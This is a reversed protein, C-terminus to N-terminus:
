GFYDTIKKHYGAAWNELTQSQAFIRGQVIMTQLLQAPLTSYIQQLVYFLSETEKADFLFGRNGNDIMYPALASQNLVSVLGHFFGEIPVKGFGESIAAQVVFDNQRYLARLQQYNFGGTITVENQLNNEKVFQQYIEKLPGEGVISLQFPINAKRLLLCTQLIYIQNKNVDLRGVSVMQLKQINAHGLRAIRQQVQEIEENWELLSYSPSFSQFINKGLNEESSYVWVPGRFLNKLLWKQFRYSLPQNDEKSWTGTYTAFVKKGIIYFFFFGPINLNNPFRQYVIDVRKNLKYFSQFWIPIAAFLKFKAKLTDGGVNPLPIFSISPSEYVSVVKRSDYEVFPCCIVMRDFYKSLAQMQRIYIHNESAFKGDPTKTHVCDSILGLIM